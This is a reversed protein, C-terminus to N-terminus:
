ENDKELDRKIKRLRQREDQTVLLYDQRFALQLYELEREIMALQAEDKKTLRSKRSLKSVRVSAQKLEPLHVYLFDKAELMNRPTETIERFITKVLLLLEAYEPFRKEDYSYESIIKYTKYHKEIDQKFFKLEAESLQSNKLINENFVGLTGFNEILFTALIAVFATSFIVQKSCFFSIGGLFVLLIPLLFRGSVLFQSIFICSGLIFYMNDFDFIKKLTKMNEGLM